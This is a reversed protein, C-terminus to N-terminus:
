LCTLILGHSQQTIKWLQNWLTERHSLTVIAPIRSSELSPNRVLHRSYFHLGLRRLPVFLMYVNSSIGLASISRPPPDAINSM